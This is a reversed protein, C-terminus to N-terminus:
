VKLYKSWNHVPISKDDSVYRIFLEEFRHYKPLLMLYLTIKVETFDQQWVSLFLM